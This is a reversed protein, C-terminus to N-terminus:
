PRTSGDHPKQNIQENARAFEEVFTADSCTFALKSLVKFDAGIDKLRQARDRMGTSSAGVDDGKGYLDSLGKFKADQLPKSQAAKRVADIAQL